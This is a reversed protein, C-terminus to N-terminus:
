AAVRYEELAARSSHFPLIPAQAPAIKPATGYDAGLIVTMGVVSVVTTAAAASIPLILIAVITSLIALSPLLNTKMNPPYEPKQRPSRM